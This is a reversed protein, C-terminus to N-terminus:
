LLQAITATVIMSGGAREISLQKHDGPRGMLAAAAVALPKGSLPVGDIAVLKDGPRVGGRVDSAAKSSIGTVILAGDPRAALVLGVSTLEADSSTGTREFYTLGNQYDIEVRFDRLVNGALSGAIPATMMGSMWKEFTGEERSVAGVNTVIIPGISLQPVRLMLAGNEMDGGFMNGFGVAGTSTPWAPNTKAWSELVVRSIMTFSAGTDLLFGYKAGAVQLEIRPFGSEKSIPSAVKVGKPEISGPKALTFQHAPYDFVV